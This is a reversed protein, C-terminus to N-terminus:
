EMRMAVDNDLSQEGIVQIVELLYESQQNHKYEFYLSHRGEVKMKLGGRKEEEEGGKMKLGGRKEEEEGGKM